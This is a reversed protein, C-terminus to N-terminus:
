PPQERKGASCLREQVHVSSRKPHPIGLRHKGNQLFYRPSPVQTSSAWDTLTFPLDKGLLSTDNLSYHNYSLVVDVNSSSALREIARLPYGTVGVFRAKGQSVVKQLAPLTENSIQDFSGYEVDHVLILDVYDLNLRQLSEDVSRVTRDSSFDFIAEGYRGVKTSVLFRDRPMSRLARGLVEEARTLGYFPAVDILNIGSDIATHVTRIADEESVDGFM